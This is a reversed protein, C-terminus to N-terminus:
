FEEAYASEIRENCHACYLQGDEYNIACDDVSWGDNPPGVHIPNSADNMCNSCLSEGDSLVYYLPYGGPWAYHDFTGHENRFEDLSKIVM